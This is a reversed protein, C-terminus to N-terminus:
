IVGARRLTFCFRHLFQCGTGASQLLSDSIALLNQAPAKPDSLYMALLGKVVLCHFFPDPLNRAGSLAQELFFKLRQLIQGSGTYYRVFNLDGEKRDEEQDIFYDLLIHLGGIWPFYVSNIRAAYDAPLSTRAALALLAFIGLTSGTAAALEWWFMQRNFGALCSKLWNTLYEERLAPSLHKFVQLLCYSRALELVTEKVPQYSPLTSIASQCACVLSSLYEGDERYPYFSYYDESSIGPSLADTFARHLHRFGAEDQVGARDCLNDLYDSVTQLAVIVKILEERYPARVWVAFISGGLCHFKKQRLSSLALQRLQQDPCKQAVREWKKIEKTVRPFAWLVFRILIYYNNLLQMKEEGPTNNHGLFNSIVVLLWKGFSPKRLHKTFM